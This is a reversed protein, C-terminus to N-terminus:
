TTGVPQVDLKVSEGGNQAVSVTLKSLRYIAAVPISPRTLEIDVLAGPVLADITMPVNPALDLSSVVTPTDGNLALQSQAGATASTTDYAKDDQTNVELLGDRAQRAADAAIGFVRAGEVFQGTTADQPQQGTIVFRNGQDLGSRQVDPDDQLHEDTLVTLRGTPVTKGGGMCAADIVTWDIGLDSLERMEPGAPKHDLADVQRNGTIGTPTVTCTFPAQGVIPDVSMADNFYALFIAALDATQNYTSHLFRKDWWASRDRATITGKTGNGDMQVIPGIWVRSGNRYIALEHQWPMTAAWSAKRACGPVLGDIQITAQATDDLVREYTLTTFPMEEWVVSNAGRTVIRAAYAGCGLQGIM